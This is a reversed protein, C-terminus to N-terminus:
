RRLVAYVLLLVVVGVMWIGGTCGTVLVIAVGQAAANSEPTTGSVPEHALMPLALMLWLLGSLTTWALFAGVKFLWLPSIPKKPKPPEAHNM